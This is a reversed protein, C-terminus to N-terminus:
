ILLLICLGKDRNRLKEVLHYFPVQGMVALLPGSAVVDRDGFEDHCGPDSVKHHVLLVWEAWSELAGKIFSGFELGVTSVDHLLKSM